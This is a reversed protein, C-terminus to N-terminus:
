VKWIRICKERKISFPAEDSITIRLRDDHTAKPAAIISQHDLWRSKQDSVMVIVGSGSSTDMGGDLRWFDSFLGVVHLCRDDISSFSISMRTSYIEDPLVLGPSLRLVFKSWLKLGSIHEVGNPWGGCRSTIKSGKPSGRDGWGSESPCSGRDQLWRFFIIMRKCTETKENRAWNKAMHM